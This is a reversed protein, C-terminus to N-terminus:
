QATFVDIYTGDETLAYEGDSEVLNIVELSIDYGPDQLVYSEQYAICRGPAVPIYAGTIDGTVDLSYGQSGCTYFVNGPCVTTDSQNSFELNFVVIDQGDADKTIEISDVRLKCSGNKVSEDVKHVEGGLSKWSLKAGIKETDAYPVAAFRVKSTDDSIDNVGSLKVAGLIARVDNSYILEVARATADSANPDLDAPIVYLVSYANNNGEFPVIVMAMGGYVRWMCDKGGVNVTGIPESASLAVARHSAVAEDVSTCSSDTTHNWMNYAYDFDPQIAFKGDASLMGIGCEGVWFEETNETYSYIDSPYYFTVAIDEEELATPYYATESDEYLYVTKGGGGSGGATECGGCSVDVCGACGCGTCGGFVVFLAIFLILVIAAILKVNDSSKFMEKFDSFFKNM